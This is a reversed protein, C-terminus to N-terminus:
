KMAQTLKALLRNMEFGCAKQFIEMTKEDDMLLLMLMYCLDEQDKLMKKLAVALLQPSCCILTCQDMGAEGDPQIAIGLFGWNDGQPNALVQQIIKPVDQYFREFDAPSISSNESM